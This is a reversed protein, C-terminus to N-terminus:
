ILNVSVEVTNRSVLQLNSDITYAMSLRGGDETFIGNVREGYIGIMLSGVPTAYHCNNRMGEVIELKSTMGGNRKLIVTDPFKFHLTTKSTKGSEGEPEDYSLLVDDNRKGYKGCVSMEIVENEGDLGQTGKIKILVDKM